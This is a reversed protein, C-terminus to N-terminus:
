GRPPGAQLPLHSEISVARRAGWAGALDCQTESPLEREAIAEHDIPAAPGGPPPPLFPRTAPVLLDDEIAAHSLLVAGRADALLGFKQASAGSARDERFNLLANVAGHEGCLSPTIRM